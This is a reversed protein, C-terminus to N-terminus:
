KNKAPFLKLCAAPPSVTATGGVPSEGIKLLSWITLNRSLLSLGTNVSLLIIVAVASKLIIADGEREEWM